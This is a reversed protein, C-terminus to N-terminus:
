ECRGKSRCESEGGAFLRGGVDFLMELFLEDGGFGTGDDFKGFTFKMEIAGKGEGHVFDSEAAFAHVFSDERERSLFFAGLAKKDFGVVEGDFVEANFIGGAIAEGDLAACVDNNAANAGLPCAAGVGVVTRVGDIGDLAFIEQDFIRDRTSGGICANVDTLGFVDDEPAIAGFVVHIAEFDFVRFVGVDIVVDHGM